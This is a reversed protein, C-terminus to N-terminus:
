NITFIVGYPTIEWNYHRISSKNKINLVAQWVCFFSTIPGRYYGSNQNGYHRDEPTVGMTTNSHM